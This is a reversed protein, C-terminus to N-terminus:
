MCRVTFAEWCCVSVCMQVLMVQCADLRLRSAYVYRSRLASAAPHVVLLALPRCTGYGVNRSVHACGITAGFRRLARENVMAAGNEGVMSSTSM